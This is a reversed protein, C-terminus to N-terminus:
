NNKTNKATKEAETEEPITAFTPNKEDVVILLPQGDERTLSLFHNAEVKELVESKIQVNQQYEVSSFTKNDTNLTLLNITPVNVKFIM